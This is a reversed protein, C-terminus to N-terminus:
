EPEAERSTPDVEAGVEEDDDGRTSVEAAAEEFERLTMAQLLKQTKTLAHWALYNMWVFPADAPSPWSHKARDRDWSVMDINLAQVEHESGDLMVVRLTPTRLRPAGM